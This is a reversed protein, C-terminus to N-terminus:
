IHILSLGPLIACGRADLREYRPFKPKLERAKGVAVIRGGEVVVAGGRITGEQGMTIVTGGIIIAEM